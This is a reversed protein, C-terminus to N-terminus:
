GTEYEEMFTTFNIGYLIIPDTNADSNVIKPQITRYRGLSELHYKDRIVYSDALSFPLNIPLTPATTSTLDLTGLSSFSAGDLAISIALSNGSGAVEAEVELEGGVKYNLPQDFNEERGALTATIATGNNTTGYWVRYVKGTTSDIAYLREENNVKLKAWAGVNWDTVVMAAPVAINNGVNVLQSPYFVWVQNNYSVAGTPLAIFYKNDWYVATAKSIQTWNINEYRSKLLYSLPFSQGLQLKDQQTRFIGRLGDPALFWIDDGVQVCTNGAVCGIDLLKEPKNTTPDPVVSPNLGWVQDAGLILIGLDRLGVLAKETGVPMRFAQSATDFAVAYDAPYADSFYLLNSKLIWARNRYYLGVTSKPPSDSGTGATSGLDQQTNLDDPEFRFWNDTGNGVLFVDGEGSEGAKIIKTLLGTTFNIKRETFTGSGPWTELKAGHTAVLLNTGGDPDYGFLGTGADSGLDEILTLGPIKRIQGPVGIDWNEIIEAQNPLIKSAHQRTNEGGSYDDRRLPTLNDDPVETTFQDRPLVGM